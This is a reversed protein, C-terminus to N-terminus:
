EHIQARYKRARTNGLTKNLNRRATRPDVDFVKAFEESTTTDRQAVWKFRESEEKSLQQQIKPALADILAGETRYLVLGLANFRFRPLPLGAETAKTRMSNLGLRREIAVGLQKLIERLAKKTGANGSGRSAAGTDLVIATRGKGGARFRPNKFTDGIEVDGEMDHIIMNMNAMAWTDAIYEQGSRATSSSRPSPASRAKPPRKWPTRASSSCAADWNWSELSKGKGNNNAM